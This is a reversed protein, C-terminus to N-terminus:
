RRGASDSISGATEVVRVPRGFQTVIATKTEDVVFAATRLVLLAILTIAGTYYKKRNM